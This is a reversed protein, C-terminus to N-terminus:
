APVSRSKHRALFEAFAILLKLETASMKSTLEALEAIKDDMM